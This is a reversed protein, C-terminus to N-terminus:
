LADAVVVAWEPRVWSSGYLVDLRSIMQDTSINYATVFRMSVGDYTERYAEHVGKPIELDATVMTVAQPVFAFNKRYVESAKTAVTIAAGNAPSATVTQYSVAGPTLAPYIPISTASAAVNATVAFQALQGTSQKNVRNVAFVGAFSVIDGKTLPGALASTTIANGSQSAGSVTGLTSYAGTTHQIVSQDMAWDFGLVNNGMRGSTYQQGIKQQNNFLGSFSSVTRAETIPDVIVTRSGMPAGLSNLLGNATAWTTFTPSITNGSGDVNHILNPIAEAGAMIDVAVAGALNNIMPALIRTTYDDLSMTRDATSFSVDVGKQTSVTLTTNQEVTDQVAVSPGTRITYDNPLRIKLTTGIKGGGRAFQDDYQRDVMQVFANSNRFLQLARRTVQQPTLLSNAM